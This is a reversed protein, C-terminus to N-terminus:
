DSLPQTDRKSNSDEATSRRSLLLIGILFALWSALVPWMLYRTEASPAIFFYPLTYIWASSLLAALLTRWHDSFEPRICWRWLGGAIAGALGLLLYLGPAFLISDRVYDISKRYPAYLTPFSRELTPNDAYQHFGPSDVLGALDPGVHPGLLGRFMRWRHQWWEPTTVLSRWANVVDNRQMPTLPAITPNVVGSSTGSFLRISYPNFAARLQDVDMGPGVVSTPLLQRNKAVSVAQLDIMPAVAWTDLRETVLVQAFLVKSAWLCGILAGAYATQRWRRHAPWSALAWFFALPLVALIGNHRVGSALILLAIVACSRIRSMPLGGALLGIAAIVAGSLVLDTWIHPLLLLLIPCLPAVLALAWSLVTDKSSDALLVLRGLGFAHLAAIALLPGGTAPIGLSLCASWIAALLPPAIDSFQANRAQYWQFASDFSLFGPWAAFIVAGLILAPISALLYRRM